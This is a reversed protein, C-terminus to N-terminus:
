EGEDQIGNQCNTAAIACGENVEGDCDDDESNTCVEITPGVSGLCSGWSGMSCTQTGNSCAGVNSGCSKTAGNTCECTGTEDILGNCNNDLGDCTEAAAPNNQVCGGWANSGCTQTGASCVGLLGTSCSQTTGDTCVTTNTTTNTACDAACSTNTENGECTGDGCVPIWEIITYNSFGIVDLTLNRGQTTNNTPYVVVTCISASCNSGDVLIQPKTFHLGYFSLRAPADLAAVAADVAIMANKITVVADLNQGELDLTQGTYNIKGYSTNELIVDPVATIDKAASFDTTGGNFTSARPLSLIEYFIDSRPPLTESRSLTGTFTTVVTRGSEDSLYVGYPTTASLELDAAPIAYAVPQNSGLWNILRIGARDPSASKWASSLVNPFNPESSSVPPTLPGIGFYSAPQSGTTLVPPRLLKGLLVYDRHTVSSSRTLNRHYQYFSFYPTTEVPDALLYGSSIDLNTVSPLYGYSMLMATMFHAYDIIGQTASPYKSLEAGTTDLKDVFIYDGYVTEFLPAILFLDGLSQGFQMGLIDFQNIYPESIYESVMLYNPNKAKQDSRIAAALDQKGKTLANGGGYYSGLDNYCWGMRPGSSYIDFYSGGSSVTYLTDFLARMEGKVLSFGAHLGVNDYTFGIGSPDPGYLDFKNNKCAYNEINKSTYSALKTDWALPLAYPIISQGQSTLTQITEPVGPMTGIEPWTDDQLPHGTWGYWLQQTRSINYFDTFRKTEEILKALENTTQPGTTIHLDIENRLAESVATTTALPGRSVWSQQLAWSRYRKAADYWDGRLPGIRVAYPSTYNRGLLLHDNPLQRTWVGYANQAATGSLVFYKDRLQGDEAIFLIGEKSTKGYAYFFQMGTLGPYPEVRTALTSAPSRILQFLVNPFVLLQASAIDPLVFSSRGVDVLRLSYGPYTGNVSLRFAALDDTTGLTVNLEVVDIHETNNLPITNWRFWGVKNTGVTLVSGEFTTANDPSVLFSTGNTINLQWLGDKDIGQFSKGTVLNTIQSLILHGNAQSFFYSVNSNSVTFDQAQVGPLIVLFTLLCVVWLKM